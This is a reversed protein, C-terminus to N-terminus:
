SSSLSDTFQTWKTWKRSLCECPDPAVFMFTGGIPDGLGVEQAFSSVNFNTVSTNPTVFTQQDFDEPQAFLLFIYRYGDVDVGTQIFSPGPPYKGIRM